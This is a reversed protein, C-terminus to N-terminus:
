TSDTRQALPAAPRTRVFTKLAIAAAAAAVLLFAGRIGTWTTLTAYVFISLFQGLYMASTVWGFARGRVRPDASEILWDSLSPVNLGFGLGALVLGAGLMLRRETTAILVYGLATVLFAVASVQEYRLRQKVRAYLLSSVAAAMSGTGLGLGVALVSDIGMTRLHFALQTTLLYLTLWLLFVRACIPALTRWDIALATADTQAGAVAPTAPSRRHMIALLPVILWAAMYPLFVNRWDATAIFGALAPTTAGAIGTASSQVGLFRQRDTGQFYRGIAIPTTALIAAVSLGLLLRWAVFEAPRRALLCGVGSIGFLLLAAIPMLNRRDRDAIRGILPASLIIALTPAVLILQALFNANVAGSFSDALPGMVPAVLGAQTIPLVSVALLECATLGWRPIRTAQGAETKL